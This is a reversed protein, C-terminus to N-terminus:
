VLILVGDMSTCDDGSSSICGSCLHSVAITLKMYNDLMNYPTPTYKYTYIEQTHISPKGGMAKQTNASYNIKTLIVLVTVHNPM